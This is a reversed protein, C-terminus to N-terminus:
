SLTFFTYHYAIKGEALGLTDSGNQVQQKTGNATWSLHRFSGTGDYNALKFSAGPLIQNLLTSYWDRIAQPGHLTQRADVHLALPHYLNMVQNLDHGNLSDILKQSIDKEVPTTGPWPYKEIIKWVEPVYTRANAWEWFNVGELKLQVTSDMFEDIESATPLWNGEKCAPGTPIIPRYPALARYEQVCRTLQERPNHAQVWYVQPMALDCQALFDKWPLQPHYSPYRYSSLAVPTKPLGNRLVSMFKRAALNRGPKKYEAEADIVYGDLDLAKVREIAKDAERTPDEGYVYHWGWVQIKRSKLAQVLPVALDIKNKLDVNYSYIGDAIKILVHQLNAQVALNVIANINGNECGAIRWIYYGKGMIAM